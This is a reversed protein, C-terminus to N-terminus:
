EDEWIGMTKTTLAPLKKQPIFDKLSCNPIFIINVPVSVLYHDIENLEFDIKNAAFLQVVNKEFDLM